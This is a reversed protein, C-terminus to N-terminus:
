LDLEDPDDAGSSGSLEAMWKGEKGFGLLKVEISALRRGTKITWTSYGHQALWSNMADSEKPSDALYDRIAAACKESLTKRKRGGPHVVLDDAQLDSEGLWAIRAVDDTAQVAYALSKPKAALNVKVPALVCQKPDKPNRGVMLAARTAGAIGISGGGRYLAPGGILKNLHRIILIAVPAKEALRKLRHMCRRVHQDKHADLEGDLYAMFPDVILLRVGKEAIMGEVLSLDWPLVPPREGEATQIAELAHIRAVDAGAVDLRPRITYGLHDEASLLLVDAPEGRVGGEPPMAWGQSVRAALDLSLTSKGLGPDGDLLTITGLPIWPKWLWPVPRVTVDALTQLRATAEAQDSRDKSHGASQQHNYCSPEFRQRLDQWQNRSCGNHWCKFAIAGSAFQVLCASRDNHEENFPCTSLVWKCGGQWPGERAVPLNHKAIWDRLDFGNRNGGETRPPERPPGRRALAELLDLPIVHLPDPVELMQALRHPREPDHDGKCALTGYCKWIRAANGVSTDVQVVPDTFHWAIAELCQNVLDRAGPNNALDIRHLLHAGNGSDALIPAPWGWSALWDRCQRARDLAAQHEAASASIGSPRTPDFDLLLWRRRVVDADNTTTKAREQVRDRCRALLEPNIANITTYVGAARGSYHQAAAALKDLDRFYGSTTSGNHPCNPIRLEVVDGPQFLVALAQCITAHTKDKQSTDSM